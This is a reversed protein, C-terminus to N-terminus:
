LNGGSPWGLDESCTSANKASAIAKRVHERVGSQVKGNTLSQHAPNSNSFTKASKDPKGNIFMPHAAGLKKREHIVAAEFSQHFDEGLNGLAAYTIKEM